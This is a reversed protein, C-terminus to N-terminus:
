GHREELALPAGSPAPAPFPPPAAAGTLEHRHGM